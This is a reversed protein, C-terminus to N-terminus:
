VQKKIRSQYAQRYFSYFSAMFYMQKAFIAIAIPKPLTCSSKLLHSAQVLGLVFQVLQLMTIYKKVSQGYGFSAMLYYSYMVMHVFSNVMVVLIVADCAFFKYALYATTPMIAHHFIHLSTIQIQKKRLVFFITDFLDLYKCACYLMGAPLYDMNFDMQCGILDLGYRSREFTLFFSIASLIVLSVNHMRIALKLNMPQRGAMFKPGWNLVFYLYLAVPALPLWPPQNAFPIDAFRPDTIEYWYDIAYYKIQANSM